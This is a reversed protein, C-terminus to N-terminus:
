MDVSQPFRKIAPIKVKANASILLQREFLCTQILLSSLWCKM